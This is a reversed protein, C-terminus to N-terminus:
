SEDNMEEKKWIMNKYVNKRKCYKNNVCNCVAVPSYNDLDVDKIKKYKKILINNMSYCAISVNLYSRDVKKQSESMKLLTEDTYINTKGKNWATKCFMPNGEGSYKQSREKRKEDTWYKLSRVSIKKKEEENDKYRKLLGLSINLRGIESVKCGLNSGATPSSNYGKDYNSSNYYNMWYQEKPILYNSAFKIDTINEPKDIIELISFEFNDKGYKNWSQQLHYSHHKNKNLNKIHQKWRGIFGDKRGTQGVYVKNNINNTILYVGVKKINILDDEKIRM